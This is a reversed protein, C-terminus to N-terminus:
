PKWWPNAIQKCGDCFENFHAARRGQAKFAAVNNRTIQARLQRVKYIAYCRDVMLGAVFAVALPIM